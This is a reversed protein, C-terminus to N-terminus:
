RYFQSAYFGVKTDSAACQRKIVSARQAMRKRIDEVSVTMEDVDIKLRLADVIHHQDEEYRRISVFEDESSQSLNKSQEQEQKVTAEMEELHIQMQEFHLYM